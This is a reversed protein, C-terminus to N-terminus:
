GRDLSKRVLAHAVESIAFTVKRLAIRTNQFKWLSLGRPINIKGEITSDFPLVFWRNRIVPHVLKTSLRRLKQELAFPECLFRSLQQPSLVSRM